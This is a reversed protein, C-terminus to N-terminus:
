YEAMYDLEFIRDSKKMVLIKHIFELMIGLLTLTTTKPISMMLGLQLQNREMPLHIMLISLSRKRYM